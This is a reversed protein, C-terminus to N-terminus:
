AGPWLWVVSGRGEGRVARFLNQENRRRAWATVSPRYAIQAPLLPPLPRVSAVGEPARGYVQPLYLIPEFQPPMHQALAVAASTFGIGTYHISLSVHLRKSGTM